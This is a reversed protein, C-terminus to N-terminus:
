RTGGGLPAPPPAGLRRLVAAVLRDCREFGFRFLDGPRRGERVLAERLMARARHLRTKVVDETLGLAEATEATSLGEVDRLVFVPRYTEALADVIAELKQRLESSLAAQEPDPRPSPIRDCAGDGVISEAVAAEARRRHRAFAEHVAIRTLWAAFSGRHEYQDLHAYASLYAQQMVDEAEAHDKVIGRAVRYLRQNYRRMLVEFM